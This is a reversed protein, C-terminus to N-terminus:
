TEQNLEQKWADTSMWLVQWHCDHLNRPLFRGVRQSSHVVSSGDNNCIPRNVQFWPPQFDFGKILAEVIRCDDSTSHRELLLGQWAGPAHHIQKGLSLYRTAPRSGNGKPLQWEIERKKEERERESM